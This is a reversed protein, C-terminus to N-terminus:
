LLVKINLQRMLRTVPTEKEAICIVNLDPRLWRATLLATSVDGIICCQPKLRTLMIESPLSAAIEPLGNTARGSSRPHPKAAAAHYEQAVSLMKQETTVDAVSEHPLIVIADLNEIGAMDEAYIDSLSAFAPSNLNEPLTRCQKRKLEPVALTPFALHAVSIWESAGITPPQKWWFGYSFKKLANDLIKDTLWHTKRGVYSYTGDDIYHGETTGPHHAMLWQFEIRRDNGTYIYDFPYNAVEESLSQLSAKRKKKDALRKAQHTAIRIRSFPADSWESFHRMFPTQIEPQDILWLEASDEEPLELAIMSSIIVNFPTSALFLHKAM